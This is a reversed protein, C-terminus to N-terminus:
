EIEGGGFLICCKNPDHSVSKDQGVTLHGWRDLRTICERSRGMVHQAPDLGDSDWYVPYASPCSLVHGHAAM